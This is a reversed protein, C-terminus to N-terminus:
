TFKVKAYGGMELSGLNVLAPIHDRPILACLMVVATTHKQLVSTLIQFIIFIM